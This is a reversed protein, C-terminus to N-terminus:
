KKVLWYPIEIFKFGEKNTDNDLIKVQSKPLRIKYIKITYAINGSVFMLNKYETEQINLVEIVKDKTDDIIKYAATFTKKDPNFTSKYFNLDGTNNTEEEKM